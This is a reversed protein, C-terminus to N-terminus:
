DHNFDSLFKSVKKDYIKNSIIVWTDVFLSLNVIIKKEKVMGNKSLRKDFKSANMKYNEHFGHERSNPFCERKWKKTTWRKRNAKHM